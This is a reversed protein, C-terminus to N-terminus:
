RSKPRMLREWNVTMYETWESPRIDYNSTVIVLHESSFVRNIEPSSSSM